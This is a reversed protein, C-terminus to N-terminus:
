PLRREGMAEVRRASLVRWDGADTFRLLWITGTERPAGGAEFPPYVARAAMLARDDELGPAAPTLRMVGSARPADASVLAAGTAEAISAACTFDAGGGNRDLFTGWLRDQPFVRDDGVADYAAEWAERDAADPQGFRREPEIAQWVRWYARRLADDTGASRWVPAFGFDRIQDWRESDSVPPFLATRTEIEVAGGEEIVANIVPVLVTRAAGCAEGTVPPASACATLSLTTIISVFAARRTM